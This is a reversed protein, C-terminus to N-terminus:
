LTFECLQFASFSNEVNNLLGLTPSLLEIAPPFCTLPAKTGIGGGSKMSTWCIHGCAVSAELCCARWAVNAEEPKQSAAIEQSEEWRWVDGEESDNALDEEGDRLSSLQNKM